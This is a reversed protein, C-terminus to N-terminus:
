IREGRGSLQHEKVVIGKLGNQFYLKLWHSGKKELDHTGKVMKSKVPLHEPPSLDLTDPGLMTQLAEPFNKTSSGL